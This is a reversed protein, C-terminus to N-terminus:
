SAIARLAQRIAGREGRGIPPGGDNRDGMMAFVLNGVSFTYREWTGAAPFPRRDPHVGSTVTREGMPDVWKRFWWQCPEGIGSADHNGVLNYFYERPHQHSVGFQCVVEGGEADDPPTQSGSLDGLHLAVDWEFSPGGAAGGRDAQRIAEALSERGHRLDTGVQSCAMAWLKFQKPLKSAQGVTSV